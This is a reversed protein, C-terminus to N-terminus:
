HHIGLSKLAIDRLRFADHEGNAAAAIIEDAIRDRSALSDASRAIRYASELAEGMIKIIEPEFVAGPGALLDYERALDFWRDAIKPARCTEAMDRLLEAQLRYYSQTQM